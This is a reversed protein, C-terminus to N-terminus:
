YVTTFRKGNKTIKQLFPHLNGIAKTLVASDSNSSAEGTRNTSYTPDLFHPIPGIATTKYAEVQALILDGRMSSFTM